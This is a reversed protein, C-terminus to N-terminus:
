SSEKSSTVDSCLGAPPAPWPPLQSPSSRDLHLSRCPCLDQPLVKTNLSRHARHAWLVASPGTPCPCPSPPIPPPSPPAPLDSRGLGPPAVAGTGAPPSPPRARAAAAPAHPASRKPGSSSESAFGLDRQLLSTFHSAAPPPAREEGPGLPFGCARKPRLCIPFGPHPPHEPGGARGSVVAREAADGSGGAALVM